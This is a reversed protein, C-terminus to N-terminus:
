AIAILRQDIRHPCLFLRAKEIQAFAKPLEEPSSAVIRGCPRTLVRARQTLRDEFRCQSM